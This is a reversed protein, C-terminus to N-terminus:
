RANECDEDWHFIFEELEISFNRMVDKVHSLIAAKGKEVKPDVLGRRNRIAVKM